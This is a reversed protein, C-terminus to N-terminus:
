NDGGKKKKGAPPGDKGLVVRLIAKGKDDEEDYYFGTLYPDALEDDARKKFQKHIADLADKFTVGKMNRATVTMGTSFQLDVKKLLPTTLPKKLIDPDQCTSSSTNIKWGIKGADKPLKLTFDAPLDSTSMAGTASSSGRRRGKSSEEGGPATATEAASM